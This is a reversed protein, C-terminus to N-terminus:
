EGLTQKAIVGSKDEVGDYAYFRLAREDAELQAVFDKILESLTIISIDGGKPKKKFFSVWDKGREILKAHPTM